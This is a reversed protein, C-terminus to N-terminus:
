EEEGNNDNFDTTNYGMNAGAFTAWPTLGRNRKATRKNAEIIQEDSEDGYNTMLAEGSM